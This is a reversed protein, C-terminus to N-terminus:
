RAELQPGFKSIFLNFNAIKDDGKLGMSAAIAGQNADAAENLKTNEYIKNGNKDTKRGWKRKVYDGTQLPVHLESASKGSGVTLDLWLNGLQDKYVRTPVGTFQRGGEDTFTAAKFESAKGAEPQLNRTTYNTDKLTWLNKVPVVVANPDQPDTYAGSQQNLGIDNFNGTNYKLVLTEVGNDDTSLFAKGTNFDEGINPSNILGGVNATSGETTTGATPTGTNNYVNTIDPKAAVSERKSERLKRQYDIQEILFQSFNEQQFGAEGKEKKRQWQLEAIPRGPDVALVDPLVDIKQNYVEQYKNIDGGFDTVEVDKVAKDFQTNIWKNYDFGRVYLPNFNVMANLKQDPTTANDYSSIAANVIDVDYDDVNNAVTTQFQAKMAEARAATDAENKINNQWDSFAIGEATAISSIDGGKAVIESFATLGKKYQESIHQKMVPDVVKGYDFGKLKALQKEQEVRQKKAAEAMAELYGSRDKIQHVYAAGTGVKGQPVYSGPTLAM